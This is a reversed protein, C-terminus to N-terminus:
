DRKSTDGPRAYGGEDLMRRVADTLEGKTLPTSAAKPGAGNGNRELTRQVDELLKTRLEPNLRFARQIQEGLDTPAVDMGRKRLELLLNDSEINTTKVAAASPTNRSMLMSTLPIAAGTLLLAVTGIITKWPFGAAAAATRAATQATTTAAQIAPIVPIVPITREVVAAAETEEKPEPNTPQAPYKPYEPYPPYTPPKPPEAPAAPKPPPKPETKEKESPAEQQASQSIVITAMPKDDELQTLDGPDDIGHRLALNKRYLHMQKLYENVLARREGQELHM